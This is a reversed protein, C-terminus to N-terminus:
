EVAEESPSESEPADNSEESPSYNQISQDDSDEPLEDNDSSNSGDQSSNEEGSVDDLVSTEDNSEEGGNEIGEEFVDEGDQSQNNASDQNNSSDPGNYNNGTEGLINNIQTRNFCTQGQDDVICIEETTLRKTFLNTIGNGVNGLWDRISNLSFGSSVVVTSSASQINELKLNLEQIAGALVATILQYNVSKYENGQSVVQPLVTELDQAIFGISERDGFRTSDKWTYSVPQLQLVTDLNNSLPTINEKLSRDSAGLIINGNIDAELTGGGVLLDSFISGTNSISFVQNQTSGFFQLTDNIIFQGQYSNSNFGTQNYNFGWGSDRLYSYNVNFTNSDVIDRLLLTRLEQSTVFFGKTDLGFVPDYEYHDASDDSGDTRGAWFSFGYAKGTTAEAYGEMVANMGSGSAVENRFVFGTRGGTITDTVGGTLDITTIGLNVEQGTDQALFLSGHGLGASLANLDGQVWFTDETSSLSLNPTYIHTDVPLNGFFTDGFNSDDVGIGIKTFVPNSFLFDNVLDQEWAQSVVCTVDTPGCTPYLEENPAFPQAFVVFGYGIISLVAIM